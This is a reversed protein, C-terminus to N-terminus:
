EKWLKNRSYNSDYIHIYHVGYLKFLIYLNRRKISQKDSENNIIKLLIRRLREGKDNEEGELIRRIGNDAEGTFTDSYSKRRSM